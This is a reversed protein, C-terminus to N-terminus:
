LKGMKKPKLPPLPIVVIDPIRRTSSGIGQINTRVKATHSVNKRHVFIIETPERADATAITTHFKIIV